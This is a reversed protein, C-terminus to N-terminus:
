CSQLLLNEACHQQRTGAANGATYCCCGHWCSLLLLPQVLLGCTTPSCRCGDCCSRGTLSGASLCRFATAAHQTKRQLLAQGWHHATAFLLSHSAKPATWPLLLLLKMAPLTMELGLAATPTATTCNDLLHMCASHSYATSPQM